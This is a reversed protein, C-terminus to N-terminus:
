SARLFLMLTRITNTRKHSFVVSELPLFILNPSNRVVSIAERIVLLEKFKNGQM